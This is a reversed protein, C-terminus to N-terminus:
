LKGERHLEVAKRYADVAAPPIKERLAKVSTTYAAASPSRAENRFSHLIIISHDLATSQSRFDLDMRAGILSPASIHIEYTAETLGDITFQGDKFHKREILQPKGSARQILVTFEPVLTGDPTIVVGRITHEAGREAYVFSGAFVICFLACLTSVVKATKM